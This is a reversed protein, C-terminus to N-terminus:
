QKVEKAAKVVDGLTNLTLTLNNVLDIWEQRKDAPINAFAESTLLNTMVTQGSGIIQLVAAKGGPTFQLKTGDPSLYKKSEDILQGNITNVTNLAEVIALGNAPSMQGATTQRDVLELGVQLYGAVRANLKAFEKDKDCASFAVLVLMLGTALLVRHSRTSRIV